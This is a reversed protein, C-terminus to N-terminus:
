AAKAPGKAPTKAPATPVVEVAGKAPTQATMESMRETFLRGVEAQNELYVDLFKSANDRWKEAVQTAFRAQATWLDQPGEVNRLAEMHRVGLELLDSAAAMQHQALREVSRAGIQQLHTMSEVMAQGAKAFQEWSLVTETNMAEAGERGQLPCRYFIM